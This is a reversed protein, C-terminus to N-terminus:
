FSLLFLNAISFDFCLYEVLAQTLYPNEKDESIFPLGFEPTRVKYLCNLAREPELNEDCSNSTNLCISRSFTTKSICFM